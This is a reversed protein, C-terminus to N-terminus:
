CCCWCTCGDAADVGAADAIGPSWVIKSMSFSPLRVHSSYSVERSAISDSM